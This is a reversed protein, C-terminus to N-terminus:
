LMKFKLPVCLLVFFIVINFVTNLDLNQRFRNLTISLLKVWNDKAEM